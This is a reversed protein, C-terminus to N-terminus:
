YFASVSTPRMSQPLLEIWKQWLNIDVKFYVSRLNLASSDQCPQTMTFGVDRLELAPTISLNELSFNELVGKSSPIGIVAMLNEFSIRSSLRFDLLIPKSEVKSAVLHFTLKLKLADVELELDMESSLEQSGLQSRRSKLWTGIISFKFPGLSLSQLDSPIRAVLHAERVFAGSPIYDFAVKTKELDIMWTPVKISFFLAPSLSDFFEFLATRGAISGAVAVLSLKELNGSYGVANLFAGLDSEGAANFSFNFILDKPITVRAELRISHSGSSIIANLSSVAGPGLGFTDSLSINSPLILVITVVVDGGSQINVPPSTTRNIKFSEAAAFAFPQGPIRSFSTAAYTTGLVERAVDALSIEPKSGTGQAAWWDEFSQELTSDSVNAKQLGVAPRAPLPTEQMDLEIANLHVSSSPIIESIATLALFAKFPTDAVEADLFHSSAESMVPFVNNTVLLSDSPQDILIDTSCVYILFSNQGAEIGSFDAEVVMGDNPGDHPLEDSLFSVREFKVIAEHDQTKDHQIFGCQGTSNYCFVSPGGEEDRLYFVTGLQGSTKGSTKLSITQNLYVTNHDKITWLTYRGNAYYTGRFMALYFDPERPVEQLLFETPENAVHFDGDDGLGIWAVHQRDEDVISIKFTSRTLQSNMPVDYGGAQNFQDSLVQRYPEKSEEFDVLTCGPVDSHDV